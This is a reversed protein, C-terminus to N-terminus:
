LFIQDVLGSYIGKTINKGLKVFDGIPINDTEIAHQKLLGILPFEPKIKLFTGFGDTAYIIVKSGVM